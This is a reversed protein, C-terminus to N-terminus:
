YRKAGKKKTDEPEPLKVFPTEQSPRATVPFGEESPMPLHLKMRIKLKEEVDQGTGGLVKASFEEIWGHPIREELKWLFRGLEHYGCQFGMDVIYESFMPLETDTAKARRRGTRSTRVPYGEVSLSADLAAIGAQGLLQRIMESVWASAGDEPPMTEEILSDLAAKLDEYQAEVQDARDVLAQDADRAQILEQKEAQVRSASAYVPGLMFQWFLAGVGGFAMVFLLLKQKEEKDLPQLRM